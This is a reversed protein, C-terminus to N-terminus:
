QPGGSNTGGGFHNGNNQPHVHTSGINIGNHTLRASVIDIGGVGDMTITSGAKDTITIAGADDFKITQGHKSYMISEGVKLGAPRFSRDFWGVCVGHDPNNNLFVAVGESVESPTHSAFGYPEAEEVDNHLEDALTEIQLLNTRENANLIRKFFRRIM